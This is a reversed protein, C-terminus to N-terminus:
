LSIIPRKESINVPSRSWGMCDKCYIRAYKTTQNYQYGRRVLNKSQCKPCVTHESYTDLNPHSKIWPRLFKYAKETILTDHKNYKALQKFSKRDRETCKIFLNKENDLKRDLEFYNLFDDLTNSPLLFKTRSTKILDISKSPSPPPIGHKAFLTNIKRIDYRDSNWGIILDAKDFFRWLDQAMGKESKYDLITKTVQEGDLWKCSFGLPYSYEKYGVIKPDWKNGYVYTVDPSYEM